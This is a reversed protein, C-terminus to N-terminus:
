VRIRYSQLLGILAKDIMYWKDHAALSYDVSIKKRNEGNIGM